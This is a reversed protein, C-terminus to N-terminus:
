ELGNKMVVFRARAVKLPQEEGIADSWGRARLEGMAADEARTTKWAGHALSKARDRAEEIHMGARMLIAEVQAEWAEREQRAGDLGQVGGM